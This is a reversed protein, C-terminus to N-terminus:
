APNPGARPPEVEVLQELPDRHQVLFARALAAYRQDPAVIRTKRRDEAVLIPQELDEVVEDAVRELRHPAAPTQRQRRPDAQVRKEALHIQARPLAAHDLRLHAVLPGPNGGVHARADEIREERGLVLAEPEPQRDAVADELLVAARDLHLAGLAAAREHRAEQRDCPSVAMAEIFARRSIASSSS